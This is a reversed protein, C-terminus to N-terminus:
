KREKKKKREGAHVWAKASSLTMINTNDALSTTGSDSFAVFHFSPSLSSLSFVIIPLHLFLDGRSCSHAAFFIFRSRSLLFLGFQFGVAKSKSRDAFMADRMTSSVFFCPLCALGSQFKIAFLFFVCGEVTSICSFLVYKLPVPVPVSHMSRFVRLTACYHGECVASGHM